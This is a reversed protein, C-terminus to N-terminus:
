EVPAGLPRGLVEIGHEANLQMLREPDPPGDSGALEETVAEFFEQMRGPPTVLGLFAAPQDGLNAFAHPVERPLWAFGGAELDHDDDGLRLRLRGQLAYVAEDLDAHRHLPPGPWGPPAQYHMVLCQGDTDESRALLRLSMGGVEAHWPAEHPALTYAATVTM